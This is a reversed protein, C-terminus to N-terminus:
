RAILVDCPAHHALHAAFGGVFLREIGRRRAAAVLLDVDADEAWAAIAAGAFTGPLLVRDCDRDGVLEDLQREWEREWEETDPVWGFHGYLSLDDMAHVATVRAGSLDAVRRSADLVADSSGDADVCAAVRAIPAERGRGPRAIAVPCPLHYAFHASVSGLLSRSVAGHHAACVVVDPEERAVWDAVSVSPHGRLLVREAGPLEEGWTELLATGVPEWDLEPVAIMKVWTLQSGVEVAHVLSVRGDPGALSRGLAVADRAADSHDICIAVHEYAAGPRGGAQM